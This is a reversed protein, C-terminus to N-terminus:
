KWCCMSKQEKCLSNGYVLTTRLPVIYINNGYQTHVARSGQPQKTASQQGHRVSVPYSIDSLFFVFLFVSIACYNLGKKILLAFFRQLTVMRVFVSRSQWKRPWYFHHRVFRKQTLFLGKAGDTTMYTFSYFAFSPMLRWRSRWSVFLTWKCLLLPYTELSVTTRHSLIVPYNPTVSRTSLTLQGGYLTVFSLSKVTAM